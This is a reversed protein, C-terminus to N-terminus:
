RKRRRLAGIAGLAGVLLLGGAPLPVPSPPPPPPPPPPLDTVSLSAQLYLSKTMLEPTLFSTVIPGGLAQVFGDIMLTFISNGQTITLPSGVLSAITVM